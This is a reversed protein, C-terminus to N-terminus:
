GAENRRAGSSQPKSRAGGRRRWLELRIQAMDRVEDLLDDSVAADGFLALKLDRDTIESNGNKRSKKISQEPEMPLDYGMLWAPDVSLAQAIAYVAPQKAEYGGRVYQGIRPQNIGTRRSLEAKKMGRMDLAMQLRNSFTDVRSKFEDLKVGLGGM